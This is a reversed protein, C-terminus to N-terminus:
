PQPVSSSFSLCVRAFSALIDFFPGGNSNCAILVVYVLLTVSYILASEVIIEITHRFTQIGMGRHSITIIRYIILLTCLITTAMDFSIYLISWIAYSKYGSQSQITDSTNYLHYYTQVVKM